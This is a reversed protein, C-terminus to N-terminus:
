SILISFSPLGGKIQLYSASGGFRELARRSCVRRSCVRRSCLKSVNTGSAMQDKSCIAKKNMAIRM